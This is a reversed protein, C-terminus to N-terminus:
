GAFGPLLGRADITRRHKKSNCERCAAQVNGFTLGGGRSVPIIHDRTARRKPGFRKRCLACRYRQLRQIERWEAATLTAPSAKERARRRHKARAQIARFRERNKRAWAAIRAWYAAGLRERYRANSARIEDAHEARYRANYAKRHDSRALRYAAKTARREPKAARARDKARSAEVDAHYAAKKRAKVAELNAERYAKVAARHAEPNEAYKARQLASTRATHCPKCWSFLRGTRRDKVYFETPPKAEGCRTCTRSQPAPAEDFLM